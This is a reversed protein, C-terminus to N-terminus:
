AVACGACGRGALSTSAGSRPCDDHVTTQRNQAGIGEGRCSNPSRLGAVVVDHPAGDAVVVDHPVSPTVVDNPVESSPSLMTQPVSSLSLMTHARVAAAGVAVVDHCRPSSLM